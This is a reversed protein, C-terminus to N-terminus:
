KIPKHFTKIYASEPNSKMADLLEGYYTKIGSSEKLFIDRFSERTSKGLVKDTVHKLVIFSLKYGNDKNIEIEGLEKSTRLEQNVYNIINTILAAIRLVTHPHKFKRLYFAGSYEFISLRNLGIGAVIVAIVSELNEITKDEPNLKRWYKLAHRGLRVGAFTDADIEDVHKSKDYTQDPDMTEYITDFNVNRSNQIIHGVEHYFLYLKSTQHMIEWIPSDCLIELERIKILDEHANFFSPDQNFLKRMGTITGRNISVIGIENCKSAWGNMSDCYNYFLKTPKIDYDNLHGDLYTQYFQYHKEFEEEVPLDHFRFARYLCNSGSETVFTKSILEDVNKNYNIM